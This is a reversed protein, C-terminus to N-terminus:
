AAVEEPAASERLSRGTLHLFVDDLTPRRLEATAVRVGDRDLARVLEPLVADGGPVRARVACGDITVEGGARAAAAAIRAADTEGAGTLTLLDGALDAKLREPTGDAIIRGHDIVLVREAMTDAEDLYHTTLFLTTGSAERIRLVHEWLNARNHPDLGTSPEDLFLLVPRHVLGLAVDL